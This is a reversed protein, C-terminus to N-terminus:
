FYVNGFLKAARKYSHVSGAEFFISMTKQSYRSTYTIWSDKSVPWDSFEGDPEECFGDFHDNVMEIAGKLDTKIQYKEEEGGDSLYISVIEKPNNKTM